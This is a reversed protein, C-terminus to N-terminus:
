SWFQSFPNATFVFILHFFLLISVLLIYVFINIIKHINFYYILLFRKNQVYM